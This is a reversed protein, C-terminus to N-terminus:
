GQSNRAQHISLLAQGPPNPWDGGHRVSDSSSLECFVALYAILIRSHELTLLCRDEAKPMSSMRFVRQM